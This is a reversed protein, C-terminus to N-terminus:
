NAAGRPRPLASAIVAADDPHGLSGPVRPHGEDRSISFLRCAVQPVLSTPV